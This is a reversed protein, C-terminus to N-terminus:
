DGEGEWYWHRSEIHDPPQPATVPEINVVMRLASVKGGTVRRRVPCVYCAALAGIRAEGGYGTERLQFHGCNLTVRLGSWTKAM